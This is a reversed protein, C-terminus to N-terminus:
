SSGARLAGFQSEYEVIAETTALAPPFGRGEELYPVSAPEVEVSPNKARLHRVLRRFNEQSTAGSGPLVAYNTRTAPLLRIPGGAASPVLDLFIAGSFPPEDPLKRAVVRAIEAFGVKRTAGTRDTVELGNEWIQLSKLTFGLVEAAADVGVPRTGFGM